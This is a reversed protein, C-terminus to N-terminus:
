QEPPHKELTCSELEQLEDELRAPYPDHPGDSFILRVNGKPSPILVTFLANPNAFVVKLFISFYLSLFLFTSLKLQQRKISSILDSKPEV